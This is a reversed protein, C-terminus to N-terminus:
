MWGRRVLTWNQDIKQIIRGEDRYVYSKEIEEARKTYVLVYYFNVPSAEVIFPNYSVQLDAKIIENFENPLCSEINSKKLCSKSKEDDAWAVLSNFKSRNNLFLDLTRDIDWESWFLYNCGKFLLFILLIAVFLFFLIRLLKLKM